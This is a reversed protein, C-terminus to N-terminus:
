GKDRRREFWNASRAVLTGAGLQGRVLLTPYGPEAQRPVKVKITGIGKGLRDTDVGWGAPLVLVVNGAGVGVEIDIIPAAAHAHRCDLKVNSLGAQVRLYPPIVWRGDRKENSMGGTLSLRDDPGYGPPTPQTPLAVPEPQPPPPRQALPGTPWVTAPTDSVRTGVEALILTLEGVLRAGQVRELREDLASPDLRGDEAARRLESIAAARESDTLPRAPDDVNM